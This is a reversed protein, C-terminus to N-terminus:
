YELELNIQKKKADYYANTILCTTLCNSAIAIKVKGSMKATEIANKLEETLRMGTAHEEKCLKEHQVAEDYKDYGEFEKACIGCRYITKM